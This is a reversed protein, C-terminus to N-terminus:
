GGGQGGGNNGNGGNGPRRGSNGQGGNGGNGSGGGFGGQGGPGRLRDGDFENIKAALDAGFRQTLETNHWDRMARFAERASQPDDQWTAPDRFNGRLEDIKTREQVYLDALSKQQEANLGVKKAVREARQLLQEQQQQKREDEAKKAADEKDQAIVQLIADRHLAAFVAASEDAPSRKEAAVEIAPERKTGERVRAMESQLAAVQRALEDVQAAVHSGDLAVPVREEAQAVTAHVPEVPIVDACTAPCLATSSVLVGGVAGAGAAIVLGVIVLLAKM